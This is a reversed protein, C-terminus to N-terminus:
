RFSVAALVPFMAVLFALMVVWTYASILTWSVSGSKLILYLGAFAGFLASGFILLIQAEAPGSIKPFLEDAVSAAISGCVATGFLGIGISLKNKNAKM